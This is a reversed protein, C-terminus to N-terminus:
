VRMFVRFDCSIFRYSQNLAKFGQEKLILTVWANLKFMETVVGMRHAVSMNINSLLHHLFNRFARFCQDQVQICSVRDDRAASPRGAKPKLGLADRSCLYRAYLDQVETTTKHKLLSSERLWLIAHGFTIWFNLGSSVTPMIFTTCSRARSVRTTIGRTMYWDLLSDQKRVSVTSM